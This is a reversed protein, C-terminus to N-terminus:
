DTTATATRPFAAEIETRDVETWENGDWKWFDRADRGYCGTRPDSIEYYGHETVEFTSTGGKGSRSWSKSYMPCFERVYRYTPHSGTIRAVYEKAHNSWRQVTVLQTTPITPHAKAQM